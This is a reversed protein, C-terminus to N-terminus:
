HHARARDLRTSVRGLKFLCVARGAESKTQARKLAEGQQESIVNWIREDQSFYARGGLPLASRRPRESGRRGACYEHHYSM